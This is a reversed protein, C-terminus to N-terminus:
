KLVEKLMKANSTAKPCQAQHHGSVGCKFCTIEHSRGDKFTKVEKRPFGASSGMRPNQGFKMESDGVGRHHFGEGGKNMLSKDDVNGSDDRPPLRRKGSVREVNWPNEM